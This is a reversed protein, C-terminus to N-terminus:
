LFEQSYENSFAQAYVVAGRVYTFWMLGEFQFRAPPHWSHKAGPKLLFLLEVYIRSHSVWMVRYPGVDLLLGLEVHEAQTLELM